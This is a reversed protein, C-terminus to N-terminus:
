PNFPDTELNWIEQYRNAQVVEFEFALYLYCTEHFLSNERIPYFNGGDIINFVFTQEPTIVQDVYMYDQEDKFYNTFM